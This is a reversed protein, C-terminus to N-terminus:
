ERGLSLSLQALADGLWAAPDSRGVGPEQLRLELLLRSPGREEALDFVLATIAVQDLIDYVSITAHLDSM